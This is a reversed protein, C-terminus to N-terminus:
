VMKYMEDKLMKLHFEMRELEQIAKSKSATEGLLLESLSVGFAKAIKAYPEGRIGRGYEWERYTSSSVDILKAVEHTSLQAALRLRRLREGMSEPKM